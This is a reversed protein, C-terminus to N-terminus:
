QHVARYDARYRSFTALVAVIGVLSASAVTISISDGIRLEDHFLRDNLLGPLLAGFGLGILAVAFIILASVLGRV